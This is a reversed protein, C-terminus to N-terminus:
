IDTIRIEQRLVQSLTMFRDGIFYENHPKGNKKTVTQRIIPPETNISSATIVYQDGMHFHGDATFVVKDNFEQQTM